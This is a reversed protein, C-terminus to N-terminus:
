TAATTEFESFVLRYLMECECQFACAAETMRYKTM